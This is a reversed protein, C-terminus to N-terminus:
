QRNFKPTTSNNNHKKSPSLTPAFNLFSVTGPMKFKNEAM